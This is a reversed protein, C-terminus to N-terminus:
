GKEVRLYLRCACPNVQGPQRSALALTGAAAAQCGDALGARRAVGSGVLGDLVKRLAGLLGTHLVNGLGV